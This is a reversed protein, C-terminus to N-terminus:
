WYVHSLFTIVVLFLLVKLFLPCCESCKPPKHPPGKASPASLVTGDSRMVYMDDPLMREKQVGACTLLNITSIHCWQASGQRQPNGLPVLM